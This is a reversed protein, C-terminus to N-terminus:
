GVIRQKQKLIAIKGDEHIASCGILAVKDKVRWVGSENNKVPELLWIRDAMCFGDSALAQPIALRTNLRSYFSYRPREYLKHEAPLHVRFQDEKRLDSLGMDGSVSTSVFTGIEWYKGFLLLCVVLRLIKILDEQQVLDIQDEPFLNREVAQALPEVLSFKEDVEPGVEGEIRPWAKIIWSRGCDIGCALTELISNNILPRGKSADETHSAPSAELGYAASVQDALTSSLFHQAKALAALSPGRFHLEDLFYLDLEIFEADIASIGHNRPIEHRSSWGTEDPRQFWSVEQSNQNLRLKAGRTTLITGDGAALALTLVSMFADDDNTVDENVSIALRTLNITITMRDRLYRSDYSFTNAIINSYASGQGAFFRLMKRVIEANDSRLEENEFYPLRYVFDGFNVLGVVSQVLDPSEPECRIAIIRNSAM